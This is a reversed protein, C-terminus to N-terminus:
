CCGLPLLSGAYSVKPLFGGLFHRIIKKINQRCGLPPAKSLPQYSKRSFVKASTSTPFCQVNPWITVCFFFFFFFRTMWIPDLDTLLRKEHFQFWQTSESLILRIYTLGILTCLKAGKTLLNLCNVTTKLYKSIELILWISSPKQISKLMLYSNVKEQQQDISIYM